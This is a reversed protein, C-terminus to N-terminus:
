MSLLHADLQIMNGFCPSLSMTDCSTILGWLMLLVASLTHQPQSILTEQARSAAWFFSGFHPTRENETESYQTRDVGRSLVSARPRHFCCGETSARARPCLTLGVFGTVDTAGGRQLCPIPRVTTSLLCYSYRIHNRCATTALDICPRLRRRLLKSVVVRMELHRRVTAIRPVREFSRLSAPPPAGRQRQRGAGACQRRFPWSLGSRRPMRRDNRTELQANERRLNEVVEAHGNEM